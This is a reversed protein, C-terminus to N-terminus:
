ALLTLLAAFGIWAFFLRSLLREFDQLWRLYAAHDFELGDRDEVEPALGLTMGSYLLDGEDVSWDKLSAVFYPWGERFHGVLALLFLSIRSSLGVLWRSVSESVVEMTAGPTDLDPDAGVEQREYQRQLFCFLAGGPGLLLYWLVYVFFDHHLRSLFVRLKQSQADALLVGEGAEQRAQLQLADFTMEPSPAQLVFLLVGVQVMLAPIGFLVGEFGNSVWGLLLAPLVVALLYAPPGSVLTKIGSFWQQPYDGGFRPLEGWWYRVALLFILVVLFAM